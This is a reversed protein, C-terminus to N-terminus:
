SKELLDCARKAGNEGRLREGMQAARDAYRRDAALEAINRQLVRSTVKRFPVVRAIGLRAARRANDPQDFAAPTVLMPRGAALAQATTGIGGPHVVVSAYPFVESYPLYPFVKLHESEDIDDSPLSGTILVARRGLRNAAELAKQFFDGPDMSVSSGLTFVIPAEGAALFTKLEGSVASSPRGDYHAFGCIETNAPWDPQPEALWRSFLALNLRPSFQGEFMAVKKSPPLGIEARLDHLPKEWSASVAKALGFIWRYPGIGLRRLLHLWPAAPIVSPDHSSFFSMPSLVTSVWPIGRKEAVLPLAFTIPHSVLLDAGAAARFLDEYGERVFPMVVRRILYVPGKRPHIVRRVVEEPSGLQSELPRMVTFEIGEGEVAERYRDLTVILPRHGRSKLEKAIALYPHLDGLSGFTAILIRKGSAHSPRSDFSM